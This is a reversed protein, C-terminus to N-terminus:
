ICCKIYIDMVVYGINCADKNLQFIKETDFFISMKRYNFFTWFSFESNRPIFIQFNLKITDDTHPMKEPGSCLLFIKETKLLEEYNLFSLNEWYFNDLIFYVSVKFCFKQGSFIGWVSWCQVNYV